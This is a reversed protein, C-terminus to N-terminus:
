IKYNQFIITKDARFSLTALEHCFKEALDVLYIQRQHFFNPGEYFISM